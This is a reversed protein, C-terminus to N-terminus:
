GSQTQATIFRVLQTALDDQLAQEVARIQAHDTLAPLSEYFRAAITATEDSSEVTEQGRLNWMGTFNALSETHDPALNRSYHDLFADLKIFHAGEDQPYIQWIFPKGAWLGRLVSDEGRVFNLDCTWLLRDYDAQPMFSFPHVPIPGSYHQLMQAAIKDPVFLRVLRASFAALVRELPAQPYCFLSIDLTKESIEPLGHRVRWDNQAVPSSQFEDRLHLLNEERTLGGTRPTFGPFFLTKCLGTAPHPSVIAHCGEVWHEASLYELDIWVPTQDRVMLDVVREPLTCAFAEVVTDAPKTYHRALVADDWRLVQVGAIIPTDGTVDQGPAINAFPGFDDVILRVSCGKEAVLQRALRWTVGLDGLNDVIRCFIDITLPTCIM